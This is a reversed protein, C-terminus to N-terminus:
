FLDEKYHNLKVYFLLLEVAAVLQKCEAAIEDGIWVLYGVELYEVKHSTHHCQLTGPQTIFLEIKNNFTYCDRIKLDISKCNYGKASIRKHNRKSSKEVRYDIM